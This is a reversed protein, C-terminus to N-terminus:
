SFSKRLKGVLSSRASHVHGYEGAEPVSEGSFGVAIEV